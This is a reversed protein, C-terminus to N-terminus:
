GTDILITSGGRVSAQPEDVDEYPRGERLCASGESAYRVINMHAEYPARLVNM